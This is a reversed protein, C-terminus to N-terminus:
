IYLWVIPRCTIIRESLLIRGKTCRENQQCKTQFREVARCMGCTIRLRRWPNRFWHSLFTAIDSIDTVTVIELSAETTWYVTAYGISHVDHQSILKCQMVNLGLNKQYLIITKIKLGVNSKKIFMFSFWAHVEYWALQFPPTIKPTNKQIQFDYEINISFDATNKIQVLFSCFSLYFEM